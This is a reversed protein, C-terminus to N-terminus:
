KQYTSARRVKVKHIIRVLGTGTATLVEGIGLAGMAAAVYDLGGALKVTGHLLDINM